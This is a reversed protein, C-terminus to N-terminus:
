GHRGTRLADRGALTVNHSADILGWNKLALITRCLGGYASRGTLGHSAERGAALNRLAALMADSLKKSM